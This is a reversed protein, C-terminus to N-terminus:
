SGPRSSARPEDPDAIGGAAGRERIDGPAEARLPREHDM